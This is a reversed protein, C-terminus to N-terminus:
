HGSQSNTKYHQEKIDTHSLSRKYGGECISKYGDNSIFAKRPIDIKYVEDSVSVLDYTINGGENTKQAVEQIIFYNKGIIKKVVFLEINTQDYGWNTNLFDGVKLIDNGKKLEKIKQKDLDKFFHIRKFHDEHEIKLGDELIKNKNKDLWKIFNNYDSFKYIEAKPERYILLVLNEWDFCLFKFNEPIKNCDEINHFLIEYNGKLYEKSIDSLVGWSGNYLPKRDGLTYEETKFTQEQNM